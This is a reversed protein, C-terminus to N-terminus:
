EGTLSQIARAGAGVGQDRDYLRLSVIPGTVDVKLPRGYLYDFYYFGDNLLEQAEAVTMEGERVQLFGMGVPKAANYLAALVEARGLESIDVESDPVASTPPRDQSSAVAKEYTERDPFHNPDLPPMEIIFPNRENM